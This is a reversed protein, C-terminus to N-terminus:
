QLFISFIIQTIYEADPSVGDEKPLYLCLLNIHQLEYLLPYNHKLFNGILVQPTLSSRDPSINAGLQGLRTELTFKILSHDSKNGPKIQCNKVLYTLSESILWFDLRSQVLGGRTRERRTFKLEYPNQLRWIDVLKYEGMSAELNKSYRSQTEIKGGKKDLKVNLQTNFDGGIVLQKSVNTELINNLEVLFALQNELNDKTPAYVNILTLNFNEIVCDVTLFRGDIDKTEKLITVEVGLNPPILIAVGRSQSTGNSFCIQGGWEKTWVVEDEEISHTEQLFTIGHHYTNLWDFIDLRKKRDRLGRCNFSNIVLERRKNM